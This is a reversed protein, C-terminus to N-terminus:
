PTGTLPVTLDSLVSNSAATGGWFSLYLQEACIIVPAHIDADANFSRASRLAATSLRNTAAPNITIAPSFRSYGIFPKSTARYASACGATLSLCICGLAALSGFSLLKYLPLRKHKIKM